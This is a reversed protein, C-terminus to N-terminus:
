CTAAESKLNSKMNQQSQFFGLRRYREYREELMKDVPLSQVQQLQQKLSDRLNQAAGFPDRHAGGLPESIILDAIGLVKIKQATLSLAEAATETFAPDKWVIAACGEPSIVSYISYEFMLLRDSVALALAGGSGGEGLVTTVIPVRLGSMKMINRAIAEAQGREEADIGPYAGPTDVFTLIPLKWREALEMLRLAKRYGEPRPMGFNRAMNESTSKGKNHGIIMVPQDDLQALGGLISQDNRFARDGSMEVFDEFMFQIYDQFNPRDPHRSLQVVQYAKLDSFIKKLIEQSKEELRRIETSIQLDGRSDLSKLQLIQDDLEALSLEFDLYRRRQM